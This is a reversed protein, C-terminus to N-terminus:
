LADPLLIPQAILFRAASAITLAGPDAVLACDGPAVPHWDMMAEISGDLAAARLTEADSAARLGIGLKAGPQADIVLWCEEKGQAGQGKARALPFTPASRRPGM